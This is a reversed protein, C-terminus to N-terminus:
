SMKDRTDYPIILVHSTQELGLRGSEQDRSQASLERMDGDVYVGVVGCARTDGGHEGGSM